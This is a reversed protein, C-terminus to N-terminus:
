LKVRHEVFRSFIFVMLLFIGVSVAAVIACLQMQAVSLAYIAFVKRTLPIALSLIIGAFMLVCTIIRFRDFPMCVKILTAMGVTLICLIAMTSIEEKVYGHNIGYIALFAVVLVNTIASPLAKMIVNLMFKGRILSKNPQLALLFAPAGIVFVGMFSLQTPYLPYEVFTILTFITLLMSFLNKVLFLSASRQINNVVRRGELVVNPMKSFDSDLLVIQAANCAAESGEAMAVSCDAIKLALVDNVGDGTMAVTNGAEKLATVIMKKQEPVVRGFVVTDKVAEKIDEMTKLTSADVYKEANAIGAEIAVKSVTEPNDGSIVKIAVENDAFYKFTEKATARIPNQIYIAAIPTVPSELKKGLTDGNCQGLIIVRSTISANDSIVTKYDDYRELLLYEPAGFLYSVGDVLIGSYKNDSSFSYIKDAKGISSDALSSESVADKNMDNDNIYKKIATMTINDASLQKAVSSIIAEVKEKANGSEDDQLPLIKEVKMTNETITGTKDVCLVNVRALTEVCAMEHILVDKKALRMVSVVLAISALLYLGEPIMGVLSAIMSVVSKQLTLHLSFYNQCFLMIGVPIIAIGVFLVFRDLARMMETQIKRRSAKAQATLKAAYSNMGVETLVARCEGSVVFSGSYLTDGASKIVDDSEGTIMAENVRVSGSVLEADASFQNGSKFICLDGKVLSESDVDMERGERIVRQKAANVINIKDLVKKARIEQIIGILINWLVVPLFTMNIYSKVMALLVTFVAFIFNFYTFVNSAIIQGISKSYNKKIRNDYGAATLRDVEENTLGINIDTKTM